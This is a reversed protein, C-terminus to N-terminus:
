LRFTPTNLDLGSLREPSLTEGHSPRGLRLVWPLTFRSASSRSTFGSSVTGRDNTRKRLPLVTGTSQCWAGRKGSSLPDDRGRKGEGSLDNRLSSHPYPDFIDNVYKQRRYRVRRCWQVGLIPVTLESGPPHDMQHIPRTWSHSGNGRSGM